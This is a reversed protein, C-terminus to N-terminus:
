RASRALALRIMRECLEDFSIGFVAASQPLLSTPTMGPLTNVELCYPEGAEDLRFDVRSFDRLKLTRHAALALERLRSGLDKDIRAPFIERALGPTYKSDYDFIEGPPIIEGVGLPEDELVGVTLERGPLFRELLVDDDYGMALGVAADLEDQERMLTLGVTSGVRSPKVILPLGLSEIAAEPAPWRFWDPTPIGAYRFLRKSLEKDMALVSGTADSGTFPIGETGLLVQIQGGEGQRGHLVLFLADQEALGGRSILRPLDEAAALRRLEAASPPASVVGQGLLEREDERGVASPRCTDFVTVLHGAARLAATVQGAGALAM